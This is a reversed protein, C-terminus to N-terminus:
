RQAVVYAITGFSGVCVLLLALASGAMSLNAALRQLADILHRSWRLGKAASAAAKVARVRSDRRWRRTSNEKMESRERSDRLLCCSATLSDAVM